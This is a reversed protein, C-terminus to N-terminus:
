AQRLPAQSLLFFSPAPTRRGNKLCSVSLDWFPAAVQARVHVCRTCPLTCLQGKRGCRDPVLKCRVTIRWSLSHVETPKRITVGRVSESSFLVWCNLIAM